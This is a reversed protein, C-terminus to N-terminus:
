NVAEQTPLAECVLDLVGEFVEKGAGDELSRYSLEVADMCLKCGTQLSLVAFLM